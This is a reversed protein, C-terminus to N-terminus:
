RAFAAPPAGAGGVGQVGRGDRNQPRESLCMWAVGSRGTGCLLGVPYFPEVQVCVSLVATRNLPRFRRSVSKSCL